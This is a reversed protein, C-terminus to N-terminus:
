KVKKKKNKNNKNAKYVYNPEIYRICGVSKAKIDDFNPDTELKILYINDSIKKLDKVKYSAFYDQLQKEGCSATIGILYEHPKSNAVKAQGSSLAFLFIIVFLISSKM